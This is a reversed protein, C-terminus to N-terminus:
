QENLTNPSFDTVNVVLTNPYDTLTSCNDGEWLALEVSVHCGNLKDAGVNTVFHYQRTDAVEHVSGILSGLQLYQYLAIFFQDAVISTDNWDDIPEQQSLNTETDVQKIDNNTNRRDLVLFYLQLKYRSWGKQDNKKLKFPPMMVAAPYKMGETIGTLKDKLLLGFNATNIDSSMRLVAFRGKILQSQSFIDQFIASLGKLNVQPM